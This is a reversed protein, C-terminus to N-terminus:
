LVARLQGVPWEVMCCTGWRRRWWGPPGGVRVARRRVAVAAPGADDDATSGSGALRRGSRAIPGRSSAPGAGPRLRRGGVDVEQHVVLAGVPDLRGVAAVVVPSVWILFGSRGGVVGEVDFWFMWGVV